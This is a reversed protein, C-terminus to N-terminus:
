QVDEPNYGDTLTDLFAVIDNEDQDSLGLNGIALNKTDNFEPRPWCNVGPQPNLQSVCDGLIDRTNYFHVVQKLTKLAGNHFYPATLAVNRLTPVKFKGLQHTYVSKDYGAKMLFGGLGQDVFNLGDPNFQPTYYYPFYQQLTITNGLMGLNSPSGPNGYTFDTFLPKDAFSGVVSIHCSACTNNPNNFLTLGRMEQDTLNVQGAMYYDFKSTFKILDSSKVYAALADAMDNYAVDVNNFVDKGYVTKFLPAIPKDNSIKYIVYTKNPDNIELPNLFPQKTQEKLNPERGDRFQGGQLRGSITEIHIGDPSFDYQISPANRLGFRGSVAGPSVASCASGDCQDRSDSFALNPDHCTICGQGQPISINTDDFILKGLRQKQTLEATATGMDATLLILMIAALKCFRSKKILKREVYWVRRSKMNEKM